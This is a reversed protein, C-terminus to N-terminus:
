LRLDIEPLQFVLWPDAITIQNQRLASWSFCTSKVNLKVDRKRKVAPVFRLSRFIYSSSWRRSYLCVSNILMEDGIQLVKCRRKTWCECENKRETQREKVRSDLAYENNAKFLGISIWSVSFTQIAYAYKECETRRFDSLKHSDLCKLQQIIDNKTM